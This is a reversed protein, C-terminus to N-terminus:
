SFLIFSSNEFDIMLGNCQSLVEKAHPIPTSIVPCGCSVAYSFTGSVAQNPDKSTFLYIDTLQLYELLIPLPLYENVFRVHKELNLEAIKKKLMDRYAEGDHKLVTPHTKGLILFLVDPHSQIIHPLAHLTTEISKGSSLLGFTALIKRDSLHYRIKLQDRDTSSVLHTGHPLVTIKSWAIQYDNSLIDAANQTMVIVSKAVTAMDKV